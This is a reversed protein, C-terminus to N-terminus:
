MGLSLEIPFESGDRRLAPVEVMRGVLRSQGTARVHAMGGHHARRHRDPIIIDLSTGLAESATWGFMREAARNWYIVRSDSDTCVFADSATESIIQSIQQSHRLRRLELLDVVQQAMLKLARRERADLGRRRRDIICLTGIRRGSALVLPAGAYFRMYPEGLVLPNDAFRPDKTADPVVMVDDGEIAHACFSVDRATESIDLGVRAKFWQRDAAILSVLAIPTNFRDAALEAIIDFEREAPTDLVDLAALAALRALEVENQRDSSDLDSSM